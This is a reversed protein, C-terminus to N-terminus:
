HVTIPHINPRYYSVLCTENRILAIYFNPPISVDNQEMQRWTAACVLYIANPDLLTGVTPLVSPLIRGDATRLTQATFNTIM